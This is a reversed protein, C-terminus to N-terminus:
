GLYNLVLQKVDEVLKDDYHNDKSCCVKKVVLDNKDMVGNSLMIANSLHDMPLQLSDSMELSRNHVKCTGKYKKMLTTVEKKVQKRYAIGLTDGQGLCYLVIKVPNRHINQLYLELAESGQMKFTNADSFVFAVEKRKSGLDQALEYATNIATNRSITNHANGFGRFVFLVLFALYLVAIFSVLMKAEVSLYNPFIYVIALLFLYCIIMPTYYPIFNKKLSMTGNQVYMKYNPWLVKRPNDYPVVIINKATKFNGVMINHVKKMGVRTSEVNGKYGLEDFKAILSDAFKMKQRKTFCSLKATTKVISDERM